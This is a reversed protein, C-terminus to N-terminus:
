VLWRSFAAFCGKTKTDHKLIRCFCKPWRSIVACIMPEDTLKRGRRTERHAAAGWLDLFKTISIFVAKNPLSVVYKSDGNYSEQRFLIYFHSFHYKLLQIVSPSNGAKRRPEQPSSLCNVFSLDSSTDILVHETVGVCDQSINSDGFHARKSRPKRITLFM